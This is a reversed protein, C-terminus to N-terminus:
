RSPATPKRFCAGSGRAQPSSASAHGTCSTRSSSSRSPSPAQVPEDDV